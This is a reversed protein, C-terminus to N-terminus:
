DDSSIYGALLIHFPIDGLKPGAGCVGSFLPSLAEHSGAEPSVWDQFIVKKAHWQSDFSAEM